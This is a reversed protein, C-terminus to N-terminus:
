IANRRNGYQNNDRDEDFGRKPRREDSGRFGRNEDRDERRERVPRDGFKKRGGFASVQRDDDRRPRFTKRPRESDGDRRSAQEREFQELREESFRRVGATKRTAIRTRKGKNGDNNM